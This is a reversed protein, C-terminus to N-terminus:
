NECMLARRLKELIKKELRSVQVQSIGLKKAVQSQTKDLFYRMILISKEREALNSIASKMDAKTVIDSENQESKLVDSLTTGDAIPASLSKPPKSADMAMAVEACSISLAKAIDGVNPIVGKENKEKEVYAVIKSATQKISRSVKVPGDDRFYRRIEGLIVPVAYTSFMLGTGPDFNEIARVLGLNALQNIDDPEIGRDKGRAYFKKAISFALGSNEKVLQEKALIDGGKAKYLLQYTTDKEFTNM